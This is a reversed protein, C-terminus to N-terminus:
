NILLNCISQCNGDNLKIAKSVNLVFTEDKNPFHFLAYQVLEPAM